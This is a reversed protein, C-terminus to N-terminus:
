GACPSTVLCIPWSLPLSLDLRSLAKSAENPWRKYKKGAVAQCGLVDPIATRSRLDSELSPERDRSAVALVGLDWGRFRIWRAMEGAGLDETEGCGVFLFEWFNMAIFFIPSASNGIEAKRV